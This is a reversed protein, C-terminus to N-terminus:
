SYRIGNGRIKDLLKEWATRERRYRSPDATLPLFPDGYLSMYHPDAQTIQLEMWKKFADGFTAGGRLCGYFSDMEDFFGPISPALVLVGDKANGLISSVFTDSLANVILPSSPEYPDSQSHWAIQGTACSEFQFVDVNIGAEHYDFPNWLSGDAMTHGGASSHGYYLIWGYDKEIVDKYQAETVGDYTDISQAPYLHALHSKYADIGGLNSVVTAKLGARWAGGHWRYDIMKKIARKYYETVPPRDRSLGTDSGIFVRGACLQPPQKQPTSVVNGNGISWSARLEMFFYDSTYVLRQSAHTEDFFAVPLEGILLVGELDYERNLHQLFERLVAPSKDAGKSHSHIMVVDAGERRWMEGLNELNTRVSGLISDEVIIARCKKKSFWDFLPM